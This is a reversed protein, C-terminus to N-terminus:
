RSPSPRSRASSSRRTAPCRRGGTRREQQRRRGQDHGGRRDHARLRLDSGAVAHRDRQPRVGGAGYDFLKKHEADHLDALFHASWAISNTKGSGASHQILYKGGPGEALVAAQLKRTADLQHFRPFIIKKIQKKSTRRPWWIAASFRWGAIGRGSRSGVSLGHSPRQPNLPNGAAGHDGQNFPLFSTAPGALRTTM